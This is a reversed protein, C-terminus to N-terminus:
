PVALERTLKCAYRQGLSNPGTHIRLWTFSWWQEPNNMNPAELLGVPFFIVNVITIIAIHSVLRTSAVKVSKQPMIRPGFLATQVQRTCLM